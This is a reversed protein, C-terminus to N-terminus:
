RQHRKVKQWIIMEILDFKRRPSLAALDVLLRTIGIFLRSVRAVKLLANLYWLDAEQTFTDILRYKGHKKEIKM